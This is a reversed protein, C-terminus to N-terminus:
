AAEEAGALLLRTTADNLMTIAQELRDAPCASLDRARGGARVNRDYSIQLQQRLDAKRQADAFLDSTDLPSLRHGSTTVDRGPASEDPPPVAPLSDPLDASPLTPVDSADPQEGLETLPAELSAGVVSSSFKESQVKVSSESFEVSSDCQPAIESSFEISSDDSFQVSSIPHGNRSPDRQLATHAGLPSQALVSSESFQVSIRTEIRYEAGQDKVNTAALETSNLPLETSNLPLETTLETTLESSIKTRIRTQESVVWNFGDASTTQTPGNRGVETAAAAAALARKGKEALVYDRNKREIYFRNLLWSLAHSLTSKGHGTADLINTFTAGDQYQAFNLAELIDLRKPTLTEDRTSVKTAPLPIISPGSTVRKFYREDFPISNNSKEFRLTMLGADNAKLSMVARCAARLASSEREHADSWGTHHIIYIAAGTARRIRNLADIAITMDGTGNEDLGVMCSALPDLVILAPRIAQAEAIFSDVAADNKLILPADMLYLHGTDAQHHRTWADLRDPIEGDAEGAIYIVPQQQAVTLAQDLALLSKGTGGPAFLQSLANMPLVGDILWQIPQIRERATSAHFLLPRTPEGNQPQEARGSRQAQLWAKRKARYALQTYGDPTYWYTRVGAADFAALGDACCWLGEETEPHFYWGDREIPAPITYAHKPWVMPHKCTPCYWGKVTTGPYDYKSPAVPTDCGPCRGFGHANLLISQATPPEPIVLPSPEGAAIGDRIAQMEDRGRDQPPLANYIRQAADDASILKHAVIGGALKGLELRRHHRQGEPARAMEAVIWQMKAEAWRQAHDQSTPLSRPTHPPPPPPEFAAIIADLPGNVTCIDTPMAPLHNGTLTFYRGQGYIEIGGAEDTPKLAEPVNPGKRNIGKAPKTGRVWIKVGRGSPSIEAYSNLADLITQAWPAITGDDDICDDLDIGVLGDDPSFVYGIGTMQLRQAADVAQQYAAWTSPDNSRAERGHITYPVKRPKAPDNPNPEARWCVWQDREALDRPLTTM